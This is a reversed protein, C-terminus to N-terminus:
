NQEEEGRDEAAMGPGVRSSSAIKNQSQELVVVDVESSGAVVMDADGMAGSARGVVAIDAAGALGTHMLGPRPAWDHMQLGTLGSAMDEAEAEAEAEPAALRLLVIVM